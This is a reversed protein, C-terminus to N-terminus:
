EQPSPRAAQDHPLHPITFMQNPHAALRGLKWRAYPLSLLNYILRGAL